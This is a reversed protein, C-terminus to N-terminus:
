NNAAPGVRRHLAEGSEVVNLMHKIWLGRLPLDAMSAAGTRLFISDESCIVRLSYVAKASHSFFIDTFNRTIPGICRPFTRLIPRREDKGRKLCYNSRIFFTGADHWGQSSALQM